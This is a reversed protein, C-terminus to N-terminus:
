RKVLFVGSRPKPAFYTAKPPMVGGRDSVAVVAAVSSPHLLFGIGGREAVRRRLAASDPYGPIFVVNPDTREDEIGFEPRLVVRALASVDEEDVETGLDLEWAGTSTVMIAKGPSTEPGTGGVPRGPVPRACSILRGATDSKSLWRHFPYVILDDDPFAIALFRGAMTRPHAGRQLTAAVRHHGDIIYASDVAAFAATLSETTDPDAIRWVRQRDGDVLTFDLQPRGSSVEDVIADISSSRRYTLGVPSSGYGVTELYDALDAVRDPRTHEHPHVIGPYTDIPSDGVVGTQSHGGSDIRLVYVAAPLFEWTGAAMEKRLYTIAATRRGAQDLEPDDGESPTGNLFSRRHAHAHSAREIPTLLDYAPSVVETASEPKILGAAVPILWRTM